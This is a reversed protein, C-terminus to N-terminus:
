NLSVRLDAAGCLLVVLAVTWSSGCLLCGHGGGALNLAGAGQRGPLAVVIAELLGEVEVVEAGRRPEDAPHGVVGGNSTALGGDVEAAIADGNREGGPAVAGQRLVVHGHGEADLPEDAVV